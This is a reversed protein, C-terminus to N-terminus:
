DRDSGMHANLLHGADSLRSVHADVFGKSVDEGSLAHENVLIRLGVGARTAAEMDTMKDGIMASRLLDLGLEKAARLIMGPGPKRDDSERKYLGVGHVPHFPCHYVASISIQRQIFEACMWQTLDLFQQESYYGRGIGAQNTVVVIKYGLRQAAGTLDFIGDVFEFDAPQHVYGHDVNIVGDRDLFLAKAM